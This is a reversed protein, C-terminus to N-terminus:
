SALSFGEIRCAASRTENRITIGMRRKVLVASKDVWVTAPNSALIVPVTPNSGLLAYALLSFRTPRSYLLPHHLKSSAKRFISYAQNNAPHKM